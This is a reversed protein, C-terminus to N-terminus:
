SWRWRTRGPPRARTGFWSVGSKWGKPRGSRRPPRRRVQGQVAPRGRDMVALAQREVEFRAVVDKTDMGLQIMKVAVQRRVPREQGAMFVVGFGGEGIQQLLQYRGVLDGPRQGLASPTPSTRGAGVTAATPDSLFGDDLGAPGVLSRVRARLAADM